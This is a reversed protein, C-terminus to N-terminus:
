WMVEFALYESLVARVVIQESTVTLYRYRGDQVVIWDSVAADQWGVLLRQMARTGVEPWVHTVPPLEFRGRAESSLTPLPVFAISGPEDLRPEGCEYAAHGRALKLVVNRVREAEIGFVTAGSADVNRALTLRSALAPKQQLIRRIKKRRLANVNVFGMLTCEVLCALYEEDLSFSHNCTQCCPVVPLNAPYPPDLLVRSPVHDRTETAGGCYACFGRNRDDSYDAIQEMRREKRIMGQAPNM